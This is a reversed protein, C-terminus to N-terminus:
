ATHKKAELFCRPQSITAETRNPMSVNASMAYVTSIEPVGSM